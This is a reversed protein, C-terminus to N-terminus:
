DRDLLIASVPVLEVQDTRGADRWMELAEMTAENSADGFVIVEGMQAAQFVARDLFRRITFPSEDGTDLVRFVEAQPVNAAQAARDVATIGGAFSVLGYGDQALLPLVEDLLRSNRAFGGEPLDIVGVAGPLAAFYASFSVDLDSATAGEPLSTALILVEVGAERYLAAAEQASTDLPNLAVTLPLDLAALERRMPMPLGPDDLILAMRPMDDNRGEYLSNRVLAAERPTDAPPPEGIAEPLTDGEGILPLGPSLIGPLRPAEPEPMAARERGEPAADAPGTRPEQASPAAAGPTIQPLVLAGDGRPAPRVGEPLLTLAAQQQDMPLRPSTDEALDARDEPPAPVQVETQRIPDPTEAPQQAEAAQEVEPEPTLEDAVTGLADEVQREPDALDADDTQAAIETESDPLLADAPEPTTAEPTAELTEAPVPPEAETETPDDAVVTEAADQPAEASDSAVQAPEPRDQVAPPPLAVSAVLGAVLVVGTGAGLGALLSTNM